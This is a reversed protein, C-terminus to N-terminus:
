GRSRDSAGRREALLKTLSSGGPLGRLGLRLAVSIIGWMEMPVDMVAGSRASPWAGTRAKHADAWALVVEEALRPKGHRNLAGRRRALLKSLTDGGPLDRRRRQLADNM